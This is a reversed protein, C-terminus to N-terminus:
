GICRTHYEEVNAIRLQNEGRAEGRKDHCPQHHRNLVPLLGAATLKVPQIHKGSAKYRKHQRSYEANQVKYYLTTSPSFGSEASKKDLIM